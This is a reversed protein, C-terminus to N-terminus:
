WFVFDQTGISFDQSTDQLLVVFQPSMAENRGYLDMRWVFEVLTGKQYEGGLRLALGREYNPDVTSEEVNVTAVFEVSLERHAPEQITSLIGGHAVHLQLGM